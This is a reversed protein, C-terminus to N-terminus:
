YSTCCVVRNVLACLEVFVYLPSRRRMCKNHYLKVQSRSEERRRLEQQLSKVFKM